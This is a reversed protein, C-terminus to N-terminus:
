APRRFHFRGSLVSVGSGVSGAKAAAAAPNSGVVEPPHTWRELRQAVCGGVAYRQGRIM